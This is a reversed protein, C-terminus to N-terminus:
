RSLVDRERGNANETRGRTHWPERGDLSCRLQTRLVSEPHMHAEAFRVYCRGTWRKHGMWQMLKWPNVGLM